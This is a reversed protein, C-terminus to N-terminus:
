DVVLEVTTSIGLQKLRLILLVPGLSYVQAAPVIYLHHHAVAILTNDSMDNALFVTVSCIDCEGLVTM